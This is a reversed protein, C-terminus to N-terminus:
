CGFRQKFLKEDSIDVGAKNRFTWDNPALVMTEFGLSNGAFIGAEDIGTQGGSRILTPKKYVFMEKFVTIMFANLDSQTATEFSYIGNGAINLVTYVSSEWQKRADALDYKWFEGDLRIPFYEVAYKKTCREGATNFDLAVALTFANSANQKTRAAYGPESCNNITLM